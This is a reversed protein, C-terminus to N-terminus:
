PNVPALSLWALNAGSGGEQRLAIENDGEPLYTKWGAPIMDSGLVVDHWDSVINSWGDSPKPM